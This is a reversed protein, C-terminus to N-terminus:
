VARSSSYHWGKIPAARDCFTFEIYVALRIRNCSPNTPNPNPDPNHNPTALWALQTYIHPIDICVAVPSVLRTYLM